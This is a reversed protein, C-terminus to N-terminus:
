LKQWQSDQRCRVYEVSLFQQLNVLSDTLKLYEVQYKRAEALNGHKTHYNMLWRACEAKPQPDNDAEVLEWVRDLYVLQSDPMNIKEYYRAM